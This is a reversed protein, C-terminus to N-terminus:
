ENFPTQNSDFENLNWVMRAMTRPIHDVFWCYLTMFVVDSIFFFSTGHHVYDLAEFDLMLNQRRTCAITLAQLFEMVKGRPIRISHETYREYAREPFGMWTAVQVYVYTM